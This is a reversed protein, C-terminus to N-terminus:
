DKRHVGLGPRGTVPFFRDESRAGFNRLPPPPPPPPPRRRRRRGRREVVDISSRFPRTPPDRCVRVYACVCRRRCGAAAAATAAAAAADVVDVADDADAADAPPM